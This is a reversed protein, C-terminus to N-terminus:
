VNIKNLMKVVKEVVLFCMDSLRKFTSFVRISTYIRSVLFQSFVKVIKVNHRLDYISVVTVKKGELPM